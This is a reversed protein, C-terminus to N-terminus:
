KRFALFRCYGDWRRERISLDLSRGFGGRGLCPCRSGGFRYRWVSKRGIIPFERQLDPFKAGFACLEEIAGDRLGLRDLAATMDADDVDRGFHVLLPERDVKGEGVVPFREATIDQNVWDCGVAKIMAPLTMGYDVTIAAYSTITPEPIIVAPVFVTVGAFKGEIALQLHNKLGAPDFPYGSAQRLQREIEFLQSLLGNMQDGAVRQAM